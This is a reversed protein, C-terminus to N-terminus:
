KQHCLLAWRVVLFRNIFSMMTCLFSSQLCIDLAEMLEPVALSTREGLICDDGVRNAVIIKVTKLPVLTFLSVLDFLVQSESKGLKVSSILEVFESSNKLTYQTNGVLSCSNPLSTPLQVLSPFLLVFLFMPNIFKRFDMYEQFFQIVVVYLKICTLPFRTM